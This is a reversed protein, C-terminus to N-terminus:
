KLYNIKKQVQRWDEYCYNVTCNHMDLIPQIKVCYTCFVINRSGTLFNEVYAQNSNSCYHANKLNVYILNPCDYFMYQCYILNRNMFNALDLSILSHCSKFMARTDNIATIDFKSLDLSVLSECNSFMSVANLIKITGKSNFNISILSTCNSFLQYGQLGLSFDFDSFDIDTINTCNQFLCNCNNTANYWVLKVFSMPNIFDYKDKIENQIIDNIYVENPLTFIGPTCTDGGFFIYQEGPGRVKITINSFFSYITREEFGKSYCPFILFLIILLIRYSYKILLQGRFISKITNGRELKTIAKKSIKFAKLRNEEKLSHIKEKTEYKLYRNNKKQNKDQFSANKDYKQELLPKQSQNLVYGKNKSYKDKKNQKLCFNLM